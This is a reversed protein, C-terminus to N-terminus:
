VALRGELAADISQQGFQLGCEFKGFLFEANAGSELGRQIGEGITFDEDFVQRILDYNKAFYREAKETAPEEAILMTCQFVCTGPGTPIVTHIYVHDTQVQVFNAPFLYNQTMFYKRYEWDEPARDRLEVVNPQPLAHRVHPGYNIHLSQNDLYGACATDRHAHCFHYSEQFAELLFRWSMKKDLEWKRFIVHTDLSLGNLQEAMPALWADIDIEHDPVSPMVWILGFREWVPLEVLGLKERDVGEFGYGHPMGRLKGDLGYTWAHYPCSFTRAKGCPKSELQAGRHRCVNLFAKLTGDQTRTILIPVGTRDHTLFDGPEAVESVHGMAIPFKRFLVSIERDLQEASTYKGTPNAMVEPLMHTTRREALDLIEAIIGREETSIAM